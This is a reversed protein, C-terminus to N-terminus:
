SAEARRIRSIVWETDVPNDHLWARVRRRETLGVTEPSGIRRHWWAVADEAYLAAAIPRAVRILSLAVTPDWGLALMIALGVSPGRNVGMHCHVLVKNGPRSLALEAFQVCTEFWDDPQSGGHDQAGAWLYEVHPAHIGVLLRDSWEGRVDIIHTIGSDVWGQLHVTAAEPNCPLDGSLVLTPIVPCPRRWIAAPDSTQGRAEITIQRQQTM